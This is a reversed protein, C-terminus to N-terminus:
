YTVTSVFHYYHSESGYLNSQTMSCTTITFEKEIFESDDQVDGFRPYGAAGRPRLGAVCPSTSYSHSSRTHPNLNLEDTMTAVMQYVAYFSTFYDITHATIRPTAAAARGSTPFRSCTQLTTLSYSGIMNIRNVQSLKM